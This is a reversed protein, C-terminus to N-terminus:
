LILTCVIQQCLKIDKSNKVCVCLGRENVSEEGPMRTWDTVWEQSAPM